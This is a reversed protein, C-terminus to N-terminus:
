DVKSAALLQIAFSAAVVHKLLLCALACEAALWMLGNHGRLVALISLTQNKEQPLFVPYDPFGEHCLLSGVCLEVWMHGRVPISGPDGQHSALAKRVLWGHWGPTNKCKFQAVQVWHFLFRPPFLTHFRAPTAKPDFVGLGGWPQTGPILASICNSWKPFPLTVLANEGQYLAGVYYM